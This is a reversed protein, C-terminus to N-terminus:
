IKCLWSHQPYFCLLYWSRALSFNDETITLLQIKIAPSCNYTITANYSGPVRKALNNYLTVYCKGKLTTM